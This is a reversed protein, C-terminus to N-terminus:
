GSSHDSSEYYGGLEGTKGYFFGNMNFPDRFYCMQAEIMPM